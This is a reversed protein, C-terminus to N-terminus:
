GFFVSFCLVQSLVKEKQALIKVPKPNIKGYVKENLITYNVGLEEGHNLLKVNLIEIDAVSKGDMAVDKSAFQGTIEVQGGSLGKVLM